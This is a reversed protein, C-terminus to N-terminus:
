VSIRGDTYAMSDIISFNNCLTIIPLRMTFIKQQVKNRMNEYRNPRNASNTYSQEIDYWGQLLRSVSTTDGSSWNDLGSWGYVRDYLIGFPIRSQILGTSLSDFTESYTKSGATINIETQAKAATLMGSLILM